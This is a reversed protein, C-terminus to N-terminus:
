RPQYSQEIDKKKINIIIPHPLPNFLVRSIYRRSLLHIPHFLGLLLMGVAFWVCERYYSQAIIFYPYQLLTLIAKLTGHTGVMRDFHQGPFRLALFPYGVGYTLPRCMALAALSIYIATPTEFLLCGFQVTSILCVFTLPIMLSQLESIQAPFGTKSGVFCMTSAHIMLGPVFTCLMCAINAYGYLWVYRGVEEADTAIKEIWTNYFAAFIIPSITNIFMWYCALVSSISLLSNTFPPVQENNPNEMSLSLDTGGIPSIFERTPTAIYEPKFPLQLHPDHSIGAFLHKRNSGFCSSRRLSNFSSRSNNSSINSYKRHSLNYVQKRPTIFNQKEIPVMLTNNKIPIVPSDTKGKYMEDDEFTVQDDIPVHHKPMFPTFVLILGSAAAFLLCSTIWTLELDNAYKFFIFVAASPSYIGSIIATATARREPFLNGFQLGAMRVTNGGVSILIAAGWLTEPLEISTVSLLLFGTTIMSGAAVRTVTLGLYHLSYGVLMGPSSYLVCAVTYILAYQKDQNPCSVFHVKSTQTINKIEQNISSTHHHHHFNGDCLQSYIGNLKLMYVLQPWGYITGSWIMSELIIIIFMFWRHCSTMDRVSDMQICIM